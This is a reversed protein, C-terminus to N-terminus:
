VLNLVTLLALSLAIHQCWVIFQQKVFPLIFLMFSYIIHLNTSKLTDDLTIEVM